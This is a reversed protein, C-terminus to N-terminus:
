FILCEYVASNTGKLTLKITLLMQNQEDTYCGYVNMLYVLLATYAMKNHGKLFGLVNHKIVMKLKTIKLIATSDNDM